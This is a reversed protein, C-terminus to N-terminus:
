PGIPFNSGGQSAAILICVIFIWFVASLAIGITGCIVGAKASGEASAPMEGRAIMGKASRGFVVALIGCVLSPIGYMFCTCISIIGLVLSATAKATTGTPSACVLQASMPPSTGSGAAPDPVDTPPAGGAPFTNGCGTCSVYTGMQEDSATYQNGCYPCQIVQGM